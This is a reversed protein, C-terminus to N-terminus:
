KIMVLKLGGDELCMEVVTFRFESALRPGFRAELGGGGTPRVVVDQGFFGFSMRNLTQMIEPRESSMFEAFEPLGQGEAKYADRTRKALLQEWMLEYEENRLCTMTNAVVHEPLVCCLTVEGGEDEKRITFLEADPDAEGFGTPRSETYVVKTGSPLEFESPLPSESAASYFAPRTRHEIRYPECALLTPLMAPALLAM